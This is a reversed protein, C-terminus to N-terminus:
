CTPVVPRRPNEQGRCLWVRARVCVCVCVCCGVDRTVLSEGWIVASLSCPTPRPSLGQVKAPNPLPVSSVPEPAQLWLPTEQPSPFPGSLATVQGALSLWPLSGLTCRMQEGWAVAVSPKPPATPLQGRKPFINAQSDKISCRVKM